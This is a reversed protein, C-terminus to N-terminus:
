LIVEGTNTIIPQTLDIDTSNNKIKPKSNRNYRKANIHISIGQDLKAEKVILEIKNDVLEIRQEIANVIREDDERKLMDELRAKYKGAEILADRKMVDFEIGKKAKRIKFM